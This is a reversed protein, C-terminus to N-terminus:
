WRPRRHGFRTATRGEAHARELARQRREEPTCPPLTAMPTGVAPAPSDTAQTYAKAQEILQRQLAAARRKAERQQEAARVEAMAAARTQDSAARERPTPGYERDWAARRRAAALEEALERACQRGHAAVREVLPQAAGRRLLREGAHGYQRELARKRAAREAARRSHGPLVRGRDDCWAGLRSRCWGLPHIVAYDSTSPLTSWSTPRYTMAHLVDDNHWGARWHPRALSRVARPSLRALIPHQRRLECAAALMEAASAPVRDSFCFVPNEWDIRARLAESQQGLPAPSSFSHFFGRARTSSGVFGEKFANFSWSPTWTEDESRNLQANAGVDGAPGAPEQAPRQAVNETETLQQAMRAEDARLPVCLGYVAARNGEVTRPSGMPRHEPTSGPEVVSLWGYLRLQALWAAMTSRAWESAACLEPWTPRATFREWHAWNRLCRALQLLRRRADRRLRQVWPEAELLQLWEVQSSPERVPLATLPASGIEAAGAAGGHQAWCPGCVITRLPTPRVM